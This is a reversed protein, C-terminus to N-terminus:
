NKACIDYFFQAELAPDESEVISKGIILGAPKVNLVEEITERKIKGSVFIPLNTNGKVMDWKDLFTLSEQEDHPQHFLLATVGLNKAELASQGISHSDLLDLMVKVNFKDATSCGMHIVDKGTGAMITVWDAGAQAFQTVADKSRDIIKCDAFLTKKPFAQRFEEVAKVGYRYILLQGIELVDAYDAVRQAIVIAKELEQTDFSIQLKM